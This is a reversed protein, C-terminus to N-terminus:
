HKGKKRIEARRMPMQDILDFIRRPLVQFPEKLKSGGDKGILVVGSFNNDVNVKNFIEKSTLQVADGDAAYVANPTVRFIILDRNKLAKKDSTLETLQSVLADSNSTADFM